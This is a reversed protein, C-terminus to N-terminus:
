VVDWHLACRGLFMGVQPSETKAQERGPQLFRYPRIPGGWGPAPQNHVRPPEPVLWHPLLM